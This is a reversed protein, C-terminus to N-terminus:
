PAGGQGRARVAALYGEIFCYADRKARQQADSRLKPHWARIRSAVEEGAGRPFGRVPAAISCWWAWTKVAERTEPTM